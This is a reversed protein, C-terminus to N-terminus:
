RPTSIWCVARFTRTGPAELDVLTSSQNEEVGEARLLAYRGAAQYWRVIPPEDDIWAVVLRGDLGELRDEDEGYAVYAGSAILPAMSSDAVRVCRHEREATQWDRRAAVFRPGSAQTLPEQGPDDVNVLILDSELPSTQVSKNDSLEFRRPSPADRLSIVGRELRQLATRLLSEVSSSSGAEEAPEPELDRDRDRFKPLKGHLLWSPEVGTLELVRLVVEAPVTVGAEYNYWTRVPLGLQRALEPGGREGFSLTRLERLRDAVGCKIKVLDPANKRRAM